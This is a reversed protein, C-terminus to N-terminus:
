QTRCAQSLFFFFLGRIISLWLPGIACSVTLCKTETKSSCCWYTCWLSYFKDAVLPLVMQWMLYQYYIMCYLSNVVEMWELFILTVEKLALWSMCLTSMGVCIVPSLFSQSGCSGLELLTLSCWRKGDWVPVDKVPCRFLFASQVPRSYQQMFKVYSRAFAFHSFLSLLQIM